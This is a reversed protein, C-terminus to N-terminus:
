EEREDFLISTGMSVLIASMAIGFERPSGHSLLFYIGLGAAWLSVALLIRALAKRNENTM